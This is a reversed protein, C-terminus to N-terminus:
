FFQRSDKSDGTMVLKASAKGSNSLTAMLDNMKADITPNEWFLHAKRDICKTENNIAGINLSKQFYFPEDNTDIKLLAELNKPHRKLDIGVLEATRTTWIKKSDRGTYALGFLYIHDADFCFKAEGCLADRLEEFSFIPGASEWDVFENAINTGDGEM